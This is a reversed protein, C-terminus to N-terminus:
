LELVRSATGIVSTHSVFWRDIEEALLERSAASGRQADELSGYRVATLFSGSSTKSTEGGCERTTDCSMILRGFYSIGRESMCDAIRQEFEVSSAIKAAEDRMEASRLVQRSYRVAMGLQYEGFRTDGLVNNGAGFLLTGPTPLEMEVAAAPALCAHYQCSRDLANEGYWDLFRHMSDETDFFSANFVRGSEDEHSVIRFPRMTPDLERIASILPAVAAEPPVVALPYRWFPNGIIM